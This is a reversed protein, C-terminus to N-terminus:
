VNEDLKVEVRRENTRWSEYARTSDSSEKVRVRM